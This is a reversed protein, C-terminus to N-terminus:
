AESLMTEWRELQAAVNGPAPAGISKRAAMSRELDLVSLVDDGFVPSLRQYDAV